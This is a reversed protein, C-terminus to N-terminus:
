LGLAGEQHLQGLGQRHHSTIAGTDGTGLEGLGHPEEFHKSVGPGHTTLSFSHQNLTHAPM